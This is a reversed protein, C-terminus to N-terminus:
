RVEAIVISVPFYIFENGVLLVQSHMFVIVPGVAFEGVMHIASFM